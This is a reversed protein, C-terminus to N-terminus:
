CGLLALMKELIECYTTTIDSADSAEAQALIPKISCVCASSQLDDSCAGRPEHQDHVPWESSRGTIRVSCGVAQQPSSTQM